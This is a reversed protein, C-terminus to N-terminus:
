QRFLPILPIQTGNRAGANSSESGVRTYRTPPNGLQDPCLTRLRELFGKSESTVGSLPWAVLKFIEPEPHWVRGGQQSLLDPRSPLVRPVEWLLDLLDSYWTRRPWMPAILILRCRDERVKRLVRTILPIPPFAYASLNKWSISLSDVTLEGGQPTWSCFTPLQNNLKSAFLDILPRELQKFITQVVTRHLMWEGHLVRQRSLMDALKNDVGAVHAARLRINHSQCWVLLQWTLMCLPPSRTGGEKNIHSVVTTNDCRVMVTQNRVVHVFSELCLWVAKLELWNIHKKELGNDWSGQATWEQLYGGWGVKSADTFMTLSAPPERLPAGALTNKHDLWWDLHKRIHETIPIVAELDRSQPKWAWLLHLQLPRMRLHAHPVVGICSVMTGLVALITVVQSEKAKCVVKILGELKALRDLSPQVIGEVLNFKTGLYNFIKAPELDSKEWNILLGLQTVLNLLIERHRLLTQRDKHVIVWDDLYQFIKLGEMRLAAGVESMMKTFVRPAPGLGFCLARFQFIEGTQLAFRLFKRHVKRIPIHLYADCLDLSCAWQGVELGGKISFFNDMKFHVRKLHQNLPRLNLIPRLGGSKKPRLFFTSYFGEDPNTVREVARKELLTYAEQVVQSGPDASRPTFRIRSTPPPTQFDLSYGRELLELLWRDTTIHRWADVFLLM